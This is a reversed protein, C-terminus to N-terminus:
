LMLFLCKDYVHFLIIVVKNNGRTCIGKEPTPLRIIQCRPPSAPKAIKKPPHSEVEDADDAVDIILKRKRLQMTPLPTAIDKMMAERKRADEEMVSSNHTKCCEEVVSRIRGHYVPINQKTNFNVDEIKKWAAEAEAKFDEDSEESAKKKFKLIRATEARDRAHLDRLQNYLTEIM